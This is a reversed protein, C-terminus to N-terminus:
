INKGVVDFKDSAVSSMREVLDIIEPVHRLPSTFNLELTRPEGFLKPYRCNKTAEQMSTLDFVLVFNVKFKDILISPIDHQPNMTQRTTISLRCINAADFDVPPQSERNIRVQIFDILEIKSVLISKWHTIWHNCLKYENYYCDSSSSCQQFHKRSHAPKTPCSQHFIQLLRCITSSGPTKALMDM